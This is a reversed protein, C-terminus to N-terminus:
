KIEDSPEDESRKRKTQQNENTAVESDQSVSLDDFLSTQSPQLDQSVPDEDTGDLPSVAKEETKKTKEKAPSKNNNNAPAKTPSLWEPLARSKRPTTHAIRDVVPAAPLEGSVSLSGPWCCGHM